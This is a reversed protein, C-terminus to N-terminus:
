HLRLTTVGFPLVPPNPGSVAAPSGKSDFQANVVLLRNGHVAASTPFRFSPDTLPTGATASRYDASFHLVAVSRPTNQAAYLTRGRLFIGDPTELAGAPLQVKEVSRDALTIRYLANENRKAVILHRGDPTATIGNVNIGAAGPASIYHLPTGTFDLFKELRYGGSATRTMRYLWPNVSDTLYATGDQTVSIDNLFTGTAGLGNDLTALHAGNRTDYAYVKGTQRSLVILRNGDLALGNAITRGDAGSKSFVSVTDSGVQGRFITGDKVSGVYYVGTAHDIAISEPFVEAGPLATFASGHRAAGASASEPQGAASRQPPEAQAVTALTASAGLVSAAVAALAARRPIGRQRTSTHQPRSPTSM